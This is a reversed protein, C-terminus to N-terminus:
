EVRTRVFLDFDNVVDRASIPHRSAFVVVAGSADIAPTASEEM